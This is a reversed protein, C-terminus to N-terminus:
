IVIRTVQGQEANKRVIPQGVRPGDVDWNPAHFHIKSFNTNQHIYGKEEEFNTDTKQDPWLKNEKSLRTEDEEEGFM